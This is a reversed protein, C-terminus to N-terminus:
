LVMGINVFVCVFFILTTAGAFIRGFSTQANVAIMLGRVKIIFLYIAM